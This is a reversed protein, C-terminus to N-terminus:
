NWYIGVTFCGWGGAWRMTAPNYEDFGKHQNPPLSTQPTLSQATLTGRPPLHPLFM